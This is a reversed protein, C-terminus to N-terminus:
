DGDNRHRSSVVGWGVVEVWGSVSDAGNVRLWVGHRGPPVTRTSTPALSLTARVRTPEGATAAVSPARFVQPSRAGPRLWVVDVRLEASEPATVDAEVILRDGVRATAAVAIPGIAVALSRGFLALAEAHGSKLLSRLGHRAAQIHGDAVWRRATQIALAPHDKAVDGLHNAVSRRVYAAPDGVMRSARALGPEPHACADKLRLGWPLRPRTGESVLRRVHADPHTVWADLVAGTQDPWQVIFPRIAFEASWRRTMEALLPLSVDPRALGHRAVLETLPWVHVCEAFGHHRTLPPPLADGLCRAAGEWDTPLFPRLADAVHAVRAKLELPELGATATRRFGAEDFPPWVARLDAGIRALVGDHIWHKYPEAM